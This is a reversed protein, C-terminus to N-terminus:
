DARRCREFLAEPVAHEGSVSLVIHEAYLSGREAQCTLHPLPLNLARQNSFQLRGQIGYFSARIRDDLASPRALLGALSPYLKVQDVGSEGGLSLLQSLCRHHEFPTPSQVYQAVYGLLAAVDFSRALLPAGAAILNLRYAGERWLGEISELWAGEVEGEPWTLRLAGGEIWTAARPLIAHEPLQVSWHRAFPASTALPAGSAGEAGGGTLSIVELRAPEILKGQAHLLELLELPEGSASDVAWIVIPGLEGDPLAGLTEWANLQAEGSLRRDRSLSTLSLDTVSFLAELEAKYAELHSRDGDYILTVREAAGAGHESLIAQSLILPLSRAGPESLTSGLAYVPFAESVAPPLGDEYSLIFLPPGGRTLGGQLASLEERTLSPTVIVDVGLAVLEQFRSVLEDGEGELPQSDLWVPAKLAGEQEIPLLEGAVSVGRRVNENLQPTMKRSLLGIVSTEEVRELQGSLLTVGAPLESAKAPLCLGESSCSLLPACDSDVECSRYSKFPTCSVQTMFAMLAVGSLAKSRVRQLIASYSSSRSM